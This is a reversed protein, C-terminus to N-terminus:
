LILALETVCLAPPTSFCISDRPSSHQVSRNGAPQLLLAFSLKLPAGELICVGGIMRLNADQAGIVVMMLPAFASGQSAVNVHCQDARNQITERLFLCTYGIAGEKLVLDGARVAGATGAGHRRPQFSAPLPSPWLCM